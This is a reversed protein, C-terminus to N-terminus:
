DFLAFPFALPLALWCFPFLECFEEGVAYMEGVSGSVVDVDKDDTSPELESFPEM